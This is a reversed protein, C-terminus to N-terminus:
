QVIQYHFQETGAPAGGNATQLVFDAGSAYARIGTIATLTGAVANIEQIFVRANAAVGGHTITTITNTSLTAMGTLSADTYQNGYASNTTGFNKIGVNTAARFQNHVVTCSDSQVGENLSVGYAGPSNGSNAEIHSRFCGNLAIGINLLNDLVNGRVKVNVCRGLLIGNQGVAAGDIINNAIVSDTFTQPSVAELKIGADPTSGKSFGIVTNGTISVRETTAGDSVISIGDGLTPRSVDGLFMNNAIVTNSFGGAPLATQKRMYVAVQQLASCRNGTITLNSSDYASVFGNAGTVINDCITNNAGSQIRISDSLNGSPFTMVNNSIVTQSTYGYVLKEWADEIINNDVLNWDPNGANGGFFICNSIKGGLANAAFTNHTFKHWGGGSARVGFYATGHVTPGGIFINGRINAGRCNRLHIAMEPNDEYTLGLSSFYDGTVYVLQPFTTEPDATNSTEFTGNGIMKGSGSFTVHDASVNFIAPPNTAHRNGTTAKVEGEFVIKMRKNIEIATSLGGSTDINYFSADAPVVLTGGVTVAAVANKFATLNAAASAASSAGFDKVSVREDNKQQQTRFVAGAANFLSRIQSALPKTTAM